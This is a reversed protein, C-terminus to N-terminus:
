QGTRDWKASTNGEIKSHRKSLKKLEARLFWAGLLLILNPIAIFAILGIVDQDLLLTCLAIILIYFIAIITFRLYGYKKPLEIILFYYIYVVPLCAIILLILLIKTLLDSM